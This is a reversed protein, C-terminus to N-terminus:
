RILDLKPCCSHGEHALASLDLMLVLSDAVMELDM